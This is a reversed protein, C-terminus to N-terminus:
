TASEWSSTEQRARGGDGGWQNQGAAHQSPPSAGACVVAQHDAMDPGAALSAAVQFKQGAAVVHFHGGDAVHVLVLELQAEVERPSFRLAVVIVTLKEIAVIDISDHNGRRIMPMSEHRDMGALRPFVNVYLLGRTLRDLLAAGHQVGRAAVPTDDM